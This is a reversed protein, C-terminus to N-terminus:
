FVFVLRCEARLRPQANAVSPPDLAPSALPDNATGSSDTVIACLHENTTTAHFVFPFTATQSYLGTQPNSGSTVAAVITDLACDSSNGEYLTVEYPAVGGTWTVTAELSISQGVDIGTFAGGSATSLVLAVSALPPVIVLTAATPTQITTDLGDTITACYYYAGVANPSLFTFTAVTNSLGTLPNSGPSVPVTSLPASCDATASTQLFVDYPAAGGSWAISATVSQAQYTSSELVLYSSSLSVPAMELFLQVDTASGSSASVSVSHASDAVVACYYTTSPPSTFSASADSLTGAAIAGPGLPGGVTGPSILAVRQDDLACNPSSGSFLYVFYPAVGGSWAVNATLTIPPTGYDISTQGNPGAVSLTPVGLGPATSVQIGELGGLSSTGSGLAVGAQQAMSSSDVVACYYTTSGPITPAPFTLIAETGTVDDIRAVVNTLRSCLSDSGSYITVEYWPGTGGSWQVVATLQPSPAQESIAASAGQITFTGSLAPAVSVAANECVTSPSISSDTVLVSYTNPGLAYTSSNAVVTASPGPGQIPTGSCAAGYYWTYSYPATGGLVYDALAYSQGYDINVTSEDNSIYSSLSPVLVYSATGSTLTSPPTNSDDTVQACAHLSRSPAPVSFAYSALGTGVVPGGILTFSSSDLCSNTPSSYLVVTYSNAASADAWSATITLTSGAVFSGISPSMTPVTDSSATTQPSPLLGMFSVLLLLLVPISALKSL